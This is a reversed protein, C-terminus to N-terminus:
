RRIHMIWVRSPFRRIKTSSLPFILLHRGCLFPMGCPLTRAGSRRRWRICMFSWGTWGPEHLKTYASSRATVVCLVSKAGISSVSVEARSEVAGCVLKTRIRCLRLDAEEVRPIAFTAFLEVDAPPTFKVWLLRGTYRLTVSSRVNDYLACISFILFFTPVLFLMM